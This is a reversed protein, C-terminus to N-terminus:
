NKSPNAAKGDVAQVNIEIAPLEALLKQFKPELKEKRITEKKLHEQTANLGQESGDLLGTTFVADIDGNKAENIPKEAEKAKEPTAKAHDDHGHDHDMKAHDHEMNAHSPEPADETGNLLKAMFEDPLFISHKITLKGPNVATVLIDYSQGAFINVTDKKEVEPIAYGDVHTIQFGEALKISHTLMGLNGFRLKIREGAKVGLRIPNDGKLVRDNITSISNDLMAAPHGVGHTAHATDATPDWDSLIYTFEKDFKLPDNTKASKATEPNEDIIFMGFMGRSIHESMNVSCHYMHTGAPKAVFDSYTYEFGPEVIIEQEERSILPTVRVGHFFMGHRGNSKNVVTLRVTDGETVRIVPGPFSNNYKWVLYKSGNFEVEGDTVTLKINRVAADAVGYSSAMSWGIVALFLLIRHTMRSKQNIKSTFSMNQGRSAYYNV